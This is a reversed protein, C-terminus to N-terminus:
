VVNDSATTDEASSSRGEALDKRAQAEVAIDESTPNAMRHSIYAETAAEAEEVTKVGKFFPSDSIDKGNLEVVFKVAETSLKDSLSKAIFADLAPEIDAETKVGHLPTFDPMKAALAALEAQKEERYRRVQASFFPFNEHEGHLGPPFMDFLKRELDADPALEIMECMKGYESAGLLKQFRAVFMANLEDFAEDLARYMHECYKIQTRMKKTITKM